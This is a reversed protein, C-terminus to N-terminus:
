DQQGANEKVVPPTALISDSGISVLIEITREKKAILKKELEASINGKLHKEIEKLDRNCKSRKAADEPTELGHRSILWNMFYTIAIATGPVLAFVVTRWQNNPDTFIAGAVLSLIAGVGSTAVAAKGTSLPKSDTSM